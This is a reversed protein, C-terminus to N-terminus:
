VNAHEFEKLKWEMLETLTGMRPRCFHYCYGTANRLVTKAGVINFEASLWYVPSKRHALLCSLALQEPVIGGKWRARKGCRVWRRLLSAHTKPEYLIFGANLHQTEHKYPELGFFTRCGPAFKTLSAILARVPRHAQIRSVVGIKGEPVADFPNPCNPMVLVDADLQLVRAYPELATSQPILAKQWFHHVRRGNPLLVPETLEVYEAGWRDAAAQFAKRAIDPLFNNLNLVVIANM